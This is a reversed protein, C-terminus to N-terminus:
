LWQGAANMKRKLEINFKEAMDRMEENNFEGGNDSFLRHPPGHVSIWCHILHKVIDKPKKNTVISGASFRTFHDIVHLYWLGPELEHLDVAVTENYTSAMPLGVAPKPKPKSYRICTDCKSVIDNLIELCDDDHNGACDLLKKLKEVSAHGFQKHLKLLVKQKEQKTMNETVTLVEEDNQIDNEASNNNAKINVCYHGSSTLELKVPQKFMTAKDNEIDLVAGARKLSTKSLLLPIDVPVVETEIHCKTQGIVAPITVRKTSHVLRGDGFRFAKASTQTELENQNLGDVYNDLWKEGCVTRTCATDIVASGLAEVM